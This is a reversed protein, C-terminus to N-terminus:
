IFFQASIKPFVGLTGFQLLHDSVRTPHITTFGLWSSIDYWIKGFFDCSLFLHDIDMLRGFGGVCLHVNPQLVQRRTLNSTTPIHNHLLRSAFLSVKLPVDKNWVINTHADSYNYDTSLLCNYASSVNYKKRLM